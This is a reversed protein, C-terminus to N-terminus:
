DLIVENNVVKEILNEWQDWIKQPAFKKISERANEGMIKRLEPNNMLLKLKEAFDDIGDECLFGNYGDIILENVSPCSKYGIVPLGAAMAETLALPMGEYASPFAFIDAERLREQVNKVEGCFKIKKQLNYTYIKEKMNQLYVEQSENAKRGVFEITWKNDVSEYIKRFAEILIMQRKQREDIRAVNIIKYHKTEKQLASFNNEVINPIYVVPIQSCYEKVVSKDKRMLVQICSAKNFADLLSKTMNKNFFFEANMHLMAIVPIELNLINKVYILSRQDYTIIIDPLITNLIKQFKEEINESFRIKVDMEDKDLKGILRLFERQIRLYLPGKINKGTGNLNFFKIKESLPYFPKGVQPDCCILFVNHGRNTFENAMNCLVKETGGSSNVVNWFNLLLVNM